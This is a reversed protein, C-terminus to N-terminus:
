VKFRGVITKLQIALKSLLTCADATQEAGLSVEQASDHIGIINRNLTETVSNQEETATAIQNNMDSIQNVSSTVRSIADGAERAKMVTLGM